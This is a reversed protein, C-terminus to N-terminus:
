TASYWMTVLLMKTEYEQTSVQSILFLFHSYIWMCQSITSYLFKFVEFSVQLSDLRYILSFAGYYFVSLLWILLCELLWIHLTNWKVWIISKLNIWLQSFGMGIDNQNWSHIMKRKVNSYYLVSVHYHVLLVFGNFRLVSAESRTGNHKFSLIYNIWVKDARSNMSKLSLWIEMVGIILCNEDNM